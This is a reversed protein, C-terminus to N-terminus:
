EVEDLFHLDLGAAILGLEALRGAADAVGDGLAARVLDPSRQESVCARRLDLAVPRLELRGVAANLREARSVVVGADFAARRDDLIVEEEEARDIRRPLPAGEFSRGV